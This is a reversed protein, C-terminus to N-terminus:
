DFSLLMSEWASLFVNGVESGHWMQAYWALGHVSTSVLYEYLLIKKQVNSTQDKVVVQAFIYSSLSTLLGRNSM